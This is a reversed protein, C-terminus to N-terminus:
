NFIEPTDKIVQYLGKAMQEIQTETLSEACYVFDIAHLLEHVFVMNKYDENGNEAIRIKADACNHTGDVATSGNVFPEAVREVEYDLFGVKVKEPIKM